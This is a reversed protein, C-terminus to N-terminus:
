SDFRALPNQQNPWCVKCMISQVSLVARPVWWTSYSPLAFINEDLSFNQCLRIWPFFLKKLPYLEKQLSVSKRCRFTNQCTVKSRTRYENKPSLYSKLCSALLLFRYFADLTQPASLPSKFFYHEVTCRVGGHCTAPWIRVFIFRHSLVLNWFDTPHLNKTRNRALTTLHRAKSIQLEWMRQGSYIKGWMSLAKRSFIDAGKTTMSKDDPFGKGPMRKAEASKRRFRFHEKEEYFVRRSRHFRM